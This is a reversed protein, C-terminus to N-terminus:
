HDIIHSIHHCASQQSRLGQRLGQLGSAGPGRHHEAGARAGPGGGPAGRQCRVLCEYLSIYIHDRYGTEHGGGGGFPNPGGLLLSLLLINTQTSAECCANCTYMCVCLSYMCVYM